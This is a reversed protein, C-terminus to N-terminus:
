TAERGNDEELDEGWEEIVRKRVIQSACDVVNIADILPARVLFLYFDRVVDELIDGM